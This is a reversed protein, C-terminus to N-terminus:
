LYRRLKRGAQDAHSEKQGDAAGPPNAAAEPNQAEPTPNGTPPSILASLSALQTEMTEMRALIATLAAEIRELVIGELQALREQLWLIDEDPEDDDAEAEAEALAVVTEASIEALKVDREAEITAIEVAAESAAEVTPTSATAPTEGAGVEESM